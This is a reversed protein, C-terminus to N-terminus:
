PLGEKMQFIHLSSLSEHSIMIGWPKPQQMGLHYNIHNVILLLFFFCSIKLIKTDEEM